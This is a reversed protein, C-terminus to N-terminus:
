TPNGGGLLPRLMKMDQSGLARTAILLAVYASLGAALGAVWNWRAVVAAVPLAAVLAALVRLIGGFVSRAQAHQPM